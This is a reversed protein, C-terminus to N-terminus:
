FKLVDLIFCGDETDLNLNKWLILKIRPNDNVNQRLITTFFFIFLVHVHEGSCNYNYIFLNFKFLKEILVICM